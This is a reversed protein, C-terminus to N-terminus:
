RDKSPRITTLFTGKPLNYYYRQRDAPRMYANGTKLDYAVIPSNVPGYVADPRVSGPTGYPVISSVGNVNLYSIESSFGLAPNAVILASLADHILIGRVQASHTCEVWGCAADVMRTAEDVLGQLRAYAARTEPTDPAIGEKMTCGVIVCQNYLYGFAATAAGNAFKGGGIVSATGGVVSVYAMQYGPHANGLGIAPMALTAAKGFGAALAGSKCDGGSAAASACGVAAHAAVSVLHSGTYQGLAGAASFAYNTVLAIAGAKYAATM